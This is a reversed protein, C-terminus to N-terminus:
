LSGLLQMPVLGVKGSRENFALGYQGDDSIEDVTLVDGFFLDMERENRGKHDYLARMRVGSSETIEENIYPSTQPSNSSSAMTRKTGKTTYLSPHSQSVSTEYMEIQDAYVKSQSEYYPSQPTSKQSRSYSNYATSPRSLSPNLTTRGSDDRRQSPQRQHVAPPQSSPNALASNKWWINMWETDKKYQGSKTKKMAEKDQDRVILYFLISSIIILIFTVVFFVINTCSVIFFRNFTVPCTMTNESPAMFIDSELSAVLDADQLCCPENNINVNRCLQYASELPATHNLSKQGSSTTILQPAFGVFFLLHSHKFYEICSLHSVFCMGCYKYERDSSTINLGSSDPSVISGVSSCYSDINNLYSSFGPLNSCSNSTTSSNFVNRMSAAFKKCTSVSLKTFYTNAATTNNINTRPSSTTATSPVPASLAMQNCDSTSGPTGGIIQPNSLYFNCFFEYSYRVKSPDWPSCGFTAPPM